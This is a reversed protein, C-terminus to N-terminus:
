DKKGSLWEGFDMDEPIVGYRKGSEFLETTRGRWYGAQEGAILGIIVGAFFSVIIIIVLTNM